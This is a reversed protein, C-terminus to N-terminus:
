YPSLDSAPTSVYCVHHVPEVGPVTCMSCPWGCGNDWYKILWSLLILLEFDDEDVYHSWPCGPCWSLRDCFFLYTVYIDDLGM